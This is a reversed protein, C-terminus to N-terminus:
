VRTKQEKDKLQTKTDDFKTEFQDQSIQSATINELKSDQSAQMAELQDPSEQSSKIEEFKRNQNGQNANIETIM